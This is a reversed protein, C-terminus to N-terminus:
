PYSVWPLPQGRMLAGFSGLAVALLTVALMLRKLSFQMRAM